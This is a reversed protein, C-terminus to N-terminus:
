IIGELQGTFRNGLEGDFVVRQSFIHDYSYDPKRDRFFICGVTRSLVALTLSIDICLVGCDPFRRFPGEWGIMVAPLQAALHDVDSLKTGQRRLFLDLQRADKWRPLHHRKLSPAHHVVFDLSNLSFETVGESLPTVEFIVPDPTREVFPFCRRYGHGGCHLLRTTQYLSRQGTRNM